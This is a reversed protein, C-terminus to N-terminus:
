CRKSSNIIEGDSPSLLNFSFPPDNPFPYSLRIGVPRHDSVNQDYGSWGFDFYDDLRITEADAFDFDDFLENTLISFRENMADDYKVWKPGSKENWYESQETNIINPKM